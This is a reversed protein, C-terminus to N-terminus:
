EKAGRGAVLGLLDKLDVRGEYIAKGVIVGDLNPHSELLGVLEVVDERGAV